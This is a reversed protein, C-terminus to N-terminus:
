DQAQKVAPARRCYMFILAGMGIFGCIITLVAILIVPVSYGEEPERYDLLDLYFGQYFMQVKFRASYSLFPEIYLRGGLKAEEPVLSLDIEVEAHTGNITM